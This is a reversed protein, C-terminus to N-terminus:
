NYVGLSEQCGPCFFENFYGPKNKAIVPGCKECKLKKTRGVEEMFTNKLFRSDQLGLGYCTKALKIMINRLELESLRCNPTM